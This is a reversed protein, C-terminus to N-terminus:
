HHHSLARRVSSGSNGSGMNPLRCSGTVGAGLVTSVHTFRFQYINMCVHMYVDNFHFDEFLILLKIDLVCQNVLSGLNLLNRIM